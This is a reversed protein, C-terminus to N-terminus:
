DKKFTTLKTIMSEIKVVDAAIWSSPGLATLIKGDRIYELVTILIDVIESSGSNKLAITGNDEMEIRMDGNRIIIDDSDINNLANSFPLIGPIFWGDTLDHYRAKSPRKPQIKDNNDPVAALYNDLARDSFMIMGLDGSKLPLHMYATGNNASPWQVPVETIVPLDYDTGPCAKYSVSLLPQITAKQISRDYTEVRGPMSVRLDLSEKKIAELILDSLTPKIVRKPM